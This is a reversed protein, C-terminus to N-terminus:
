KPPIAMPYHDRQWTKRIKNMSRVADIEWQKNTGYRESSSRYMNITGEGVQVSHVIEHFMVEGLSMNVKKSVGGSTGHVWLNNAQRMNVLIVSPSGDEFFGRGGPVPVVQTEGEHLAVVVPHDLKSLRSMWSLALDTDYSDEDSTISSLGDNIQKRVEDPVNGYFNIAGDTCKDSVVCLGEYIRKGVAAIGGDNISETVGVGQGESGPLNVSKTQGQKTSSGNSKQFLVDNRGQSAAACQASTMAGCVEPNSSMSPGPSPELRADVEMRIYGSPDTAALPNNMVYSYPNFSQSNGPEAIFPDVSLFRGIYSDYARGNMHILRQQQLHEHGTFGRPTRELNDSTGQNMDLASGFSDFARREVVAAEGGTTAADITAATLTHVSGMRDRHLFRLKTKGQADKTRLGWDGLYTRTEQTSSTTVYESSGGYYTTAVTGNNNEVQKYRDGNTDYYFSTTIGGKTITVPKNNLDYSLSRGDGSTMNGNNDYAFNIATGGNRTLQRVANSGANGGASKSANGYQYSYGYDSKRTLNGSPSYDYYLSQNSGSQLNSRDNQTLRHLDDYSYSERYNAKSDWLGQLNGFRDYDQGQPNEYRLYQATESAESCDSGSTTCISRVQGSLYRVTETKLGNGYQATQTQGSADLAEIQYLVQSRRVDIQRTATGTVPDYQTQILSGDDLLRGKVRNYRSDYAQKEVFIKGDTDTVAEVVRNLSDFVYSRAFNGRVEGGLAGYVIGGQDPDYFWESAEGESPTRTIMRGLNDYTFSITDNNADRQWKLEGLANYRFTWSGRNPDSMSQKHGFDNYSATIDQGEVDRTLLLNGQGDYRFQTNLGQADTNQLRWSNSADVFGMTLTKDGTVTMNIALGQYDYSVQYNIPARDVTKTQPRGLLDFNSYSTRLKSSSDDDRFETEEMLYGLANYTKTAIQWAYTPSTGANVLAKVRSQIVRGLVDRYEIAEPTGASTKRIRSVARAPCWVNASSCWQYQVYQSPTYTAGAATQSHVAVPQGFANYETVVQLGNADISVEVQGTAPDIVQQGAVVSEGWQNNYTTEPFYGDETYDTKAWRTGDIDTQGPTTNRSSSTVRTRNGYSDYAFSEKLTLSASSSCITSTLSAGYGPMCTEVADIQYDNAASYTFQKALARQTESASIGLGTSYSVQGQELQALRKAVRWITTNAAAYQTSAQRTLTLWGSDAVTTTTQTRNGYGDYSSNTTNTTVLTVGDLQYRRSVATKIYPFKLYDKQQTSSLPGASLLKESVAGSSKHRLKVALTNDTKSLLKNGAIQRVETHLLQGTFPYDQAFESRTKIGKQSDTVDIAKFGQFGRGAKHFRANEYKYSYNRTGGIGDDTAYASVVELGNNFNIYPAQSTNYSVSYISSDSINKYQFHHTVLGDSISEVLDAQGVQNFYVHVGKSPAGSTTFNPRINTLIDRKGDGNIDLVKLEPLAGYIAPGSTKKKYTPLGDSGIRAIWVYWRWIDGTLKEREDCKSGFMCYGSAGAASYAISDPILLDELGDNDLDISKVHEYPRIYFEVPDGFEDKLIPHEYMTSGPIMGSHSIPLTSGNGKNLELTNSGIEDLLGDSNLDILNKVSRKEVKGDGDYDVFQYNKKSGTSETHDKRFGFACSDGSTGSDCSPDRLYYTMLPLELSRSHIAIFDDLGDGNLDVVSSNCADPDVDGGHTLENDRCSVDINTDTIDFSSGNWNAFSLYATAVGQNTVVRYGMIEARGDGTFDPTLGSLYGRQFYYPDVLALNTVDVWSGLSSLFIKAKASSGSDGNVAFYDIVGDGDYDAHALFKHTGTPLTMWPNGSIGSLVGSIPNWQIDTVKAQKGSRTLTIQQLFSKRASLNLNTLEAPESISGYSLDYAAVKAAGVYTEISALRQTHKVLDSASYGASLDPRAEYNLKVRRDGDSTNQGTYYISELYQAGGSNLYNYTINNAYVDLQRTINWSRVINSSSLDRSNADEGFYSTRGDAHYVAFKSTSSQIGGSQVVKISLDREPYYVAGSEGYTGSALMLRDGNLCLKDASTYTASRANEQDIGWNGACRHISGGAALSWGQGALGNGGRSSYNLSVSPQMGNRGPPLQVPISYSAIGGQVAAKGNIVAVTDSSPVSGNNFTPDDPIDMLTKTGDGASENNETALSVAVTHASGFESCILENCAKARYELQGNAAETVLLNNDAVEPDLVSWSGGAPRREVVFYTAENDLAWNITFEGNGTLESRYGASPGTVAPVSPIKRVKITSSYSSYGSCAWSYQNCARFRYQYDGSAQGSIVYSISTHGSVKQVASGGNKREQLDYYPVTGPSSTWSVSYSGGINTAPISPAAPVPPSIRVTASGSTQYGSYATYTSETNYARVRFAYSGDVLGSVNKSLGTGTYIKQWGGGNFQQYLEYNDATGSAIGWSVTFSGNNNTSPIAVTGPTGPKNAVITSNSSTSYGSYAIFSSESNYARVQFRYTGDTLGSVAKSTATGTYINVWSGGNKQQYLQYNDVTGASAGWSVTFAGNDDTGPITVAGPTGPKNAVIVSGSVRYGSYATYTSETNYARVQFKYTGDSLGSVSKSRATGTYINVWSGGNKQQYLQYKDVTGSSAGWSVTFAGNDDTSPVSISPPVGPKNAVITNGSTRYSSCDSSRCARVRYKYTGDGRGSVTYGFELYLTAILSWSGGNKSEQLEFKNAVTPPEGWSITYSGNNDTSPVTISSPPTVDDGDGIGVAAYACSGLGLLIALILHRM